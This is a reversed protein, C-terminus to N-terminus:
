RQALLQTSDEDDLSIANGRSGVGVDCQSRQPQQNAPTRNTMAAVPAASQAQISDQMVPFRRFPSLSADELDSTRDVSVSRKCLGCCVPLSNPVSSSFKCSRCVLGFADLDRTAESIHGTLLPACRYVTSPSSFFTPHRTMSRYSSLPTLPVANRLFCNATHRHGLPVPSPRHLSSHGDVERPM